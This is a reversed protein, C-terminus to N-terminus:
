VPLTTFVSRHYLHFSDLVLFGSVPQPFAVFIEGSNGPCVVRAFEPNEDWM